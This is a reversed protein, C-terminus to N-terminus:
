SEEQYFQQETLYADCIDNLKSHMSSTIGPITNRMLSLWITYKSNLIVVPQKDDGCKIIIPPLEDDDVIRIEIEKRMEEDMGIRNM